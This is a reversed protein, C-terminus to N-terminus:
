SLNSEVTFNPEYTRRAFICLAHCSIEIPTEKTTHLVHRIVTISAIPMVCQDRSYQVSALQVEDYFPIVLSFLFYILFRVCLCVIICFHHEHVACAESMSM